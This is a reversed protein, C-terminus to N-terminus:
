TPEVLGLTKLEEIAARAEHSARSPDVGEFSAPMDAIIDDLKRSGDCHKWLFAMTANLVFFQSKEPDYLMLDRQLPSEEIRGNRKYCDAM